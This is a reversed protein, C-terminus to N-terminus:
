EVQHLSQPTTMNKYQKRESEQGSVIKSANVLQERITKLKPHDQKYKAAYEKELIELQFLVGRM